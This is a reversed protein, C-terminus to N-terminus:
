ATQENQAGTIVNNFLKNPLCSQHNQGNGKKTLLLTPFSKATRSQPLISNSQM